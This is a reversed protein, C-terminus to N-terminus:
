FNSSHRRPRRKGPERFLGARSPRSSRSGGGAVPRCLRRWPLALDRRIQQFGLEVEGSAIISGVFISTPTQKLKPKIEAAIGLRQFLAVIYNGSPGTSYGISKAALLTKKLAETSGIDPKRAGSKVGIGVGSKAIDVRSGPALKGDKIHEEISPRSMILLDYTEGAAL